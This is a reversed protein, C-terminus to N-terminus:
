GGGASETLPVAFRVVSAEGSEIHVKRLVPRAREHWAVASYTGPPVDDIQFKGERDPTTFFPNDLVLIIASMDAHIHCFVKVVGPQEFRVSRSSGRPYRGLDFSTAKSLSFVNHFIPDGNLFDVTSGKVIPLLHPVFAENKQEM